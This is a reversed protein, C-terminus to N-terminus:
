ESLDSAMWHHSDPEGDGALGSVISGMFIYPMVGFVCQLEDELIDIENIDVFIKGM